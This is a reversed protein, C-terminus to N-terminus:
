GNTERLVDDRLMKFMVLFWACFVFVPLWFAILGNWAFPGTKFFFLLQGPLVLVFVWFNFFGVWRPFVPNKSKDNLSAIGVTLLMPLFPTLGGILQIWGVDNLLQVLEPSRDARFSAIIWWLPPYFTLMTNAVGAMIQSATLMGLGGEIRYLASAVAGTFPICMMAGFMVFVMGIRIKVSDQAYINAIEEAGATPSHAPVFGAIFVWGITLLVVYLVGSWAGMLQTKRRLETNM